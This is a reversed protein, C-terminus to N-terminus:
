WNHQHGSDINVFSRIRNNLTVYFLCVTFLRINVHVCGPMYGTIMRTQIRYDDKKTDYLSLYLM